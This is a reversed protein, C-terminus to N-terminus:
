TTSTKAVSNEKDELRSSSSNKNITEAASNSTKAPKKSKLRFILREVLSKIQQKSLKRNIFYLPHRKELYAIMQDPDSDAQLMRLKM